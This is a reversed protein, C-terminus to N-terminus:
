KIKQQNRQYANRQAILSVNSIMLSAFFHKDHRFMSSNIPHLSRIFQNPRNQSKSTKQYNIKRKGNREKENM